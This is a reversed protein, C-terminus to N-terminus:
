EGPLRSGACEKDLDLPGKRQCIDVGRQGRERGARDALDDDRDLVAQVLPSRLGLDAAGSGPGRCTSTRPARSAIITAAGALKSSSGRVSEPARQAFGVVREGPM